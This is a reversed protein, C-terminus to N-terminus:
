DMNTEMRQLREPLSVNKMKLNLVNAFLEATMNWTFVVDEAQIDSFLLQPFHQNSSFINM